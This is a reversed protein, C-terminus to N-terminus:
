SRQRPLASGPRAGERVPGGPETGGRGGAAAPRPTRPAPPSAASDRPDRGRAGVRGWVFDQAAAPRPARPQAPPLGGCGDKAARRAPTAPTERGRRPPQELGSRHKQCRAPFPSISCAAPHTKTKNKPQQEKHIKKKSIYIKKERLNRRRYLFLRHMYICVCVCERSYKKISRYIHCPSM